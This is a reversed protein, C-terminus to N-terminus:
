HLVPFNSRIVNGPDRDRKLERLRAITKEDFAASAHEGAALFTFPKLGSIQPALADALDAQRHRIAAAVEPSSPIGVMYLLYPEALAAAAASGAEALAAGLHRLQVALLPEITSASLVDAAHDDLGTLLEARNLGPSPDTPEDTIASLATVTRVARSDRLPGGVQDLRRLLERGQDPEGLFVTDVLVMSPAGPPQVRGFWTSLEAPAEATLERFAALVDSVRDGPWLVRGGYLAPVRHLDLEVATVIALDGGGGRLAWFLEADSEATVRLFDGHADFVEFATVHEAALGYRRGFWGLGGGLLYGVVSVVPSSGPLGTLGHSEAVAQLQGWSVGAGVRVHRSEPRIELEDLPGTRLLIVGDVDGSAGHGRPQASVALGARRAYRLVTRVEEARAVEVVAAVSQEIALNWPQRAQDFEEDGPLLVRGDLLHRLEDHKSM